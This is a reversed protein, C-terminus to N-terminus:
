PIIAGKRRDVKRRDITGMTELNSDNRVASSPARTDLRQEYAKELLENQCLTSNRVLAADHTAGSPDSHDEPTTFTNNVQQHGQAINQQQVYSVPRPNKINSLTELTARSQAQAKLGLALHTHFQKHGSEVAARRLLSVAVTQLLQAQGYLMTEVPKMNGESVVRSNRDYMGEILATLNISDVSDGGFVAFAAMGAANQIIPSLLIEHPRVKNDTIGSSPKKIQTHQKTKTM